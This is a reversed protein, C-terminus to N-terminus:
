DRSKRGGRRRPKETARERALAAIPKAKIKAKAKRKGKSNVRRGLHAPTVADPLATNLVLARVDRIATTLARGQAKLTATLSERLGRRRSRRQRAEPRWSGCTYYGVVYLGFRIHHPDLYQEVLQSRMATMVQTHWSGKVEIVARIEEVTRNTRPAAHAVVDIDTRLGDAGGLVGIQLVLERGVVIRREALDTRLHRAITNALHGESKPSNGDDQENWLGDVARWQGQLEVELRSLSEELVDLLQAGSEIQRLDAREALRMLERPPTGRWRDGRLAAKAQLWMQVLYDREPLAFAIRELQAVASVTKRADLVNLLHNRWHQLNDRASPTYVGVHWPDTEPPYLRAILLYLDAVREDPVADITQRPLFDRGRAAHELLETAALDNATLRAWILDWALPLAHVLLASGAALGQQRSGTGGRDALRSLLKQAADLAEPATRQLLPVLLQEITTGDYEGRAIRSTLAASFGPVAVAIDYISDHVWLRNERALRDFLRLLEERAVGPDVRAVHRVIATLDDSEAKPVSYGVFPRM